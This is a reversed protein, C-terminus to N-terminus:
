FILILTGRWRGSYFCTDKHKQVCHINLKKWRHEPPIVIFRSIDKDNLWITKYLCHQLMILHKPPLSAVRLNISGVWLPLYYNEFKVGSKWLRLEVISTTCPLHKIMFLIPPKGRYLWSFLPFHHEPKYSTFWELITWIGAKSHVIQWGQQELLQEITDLRDVWQINFPQIFHGFRDPRFIPVYQLPNKWWTEILIKRVPWIPTYCHILTRYKAKSFASWPLVVALILFALWKLNGFPQQPYRRYLVITSLLITLGFLFSGLIDELWHTGLYLRSYSILIITIVLLTYPIWQWKKSIQQAVLFAIFGFTPLGFGIHGSPFTFFPYHWVSFGAPRPAQVLNKLIVILCGTILTTGALYMAPRFLKKISLATVLLLIVSIIVRYDGLMTIITFIKDINSFRLSQLFYFVPKNFNTLSGLIMTIVVLACFFCLSFCALIIMVLQYHDKPTKRNTILKRLPHSSYRRCISKWLRNAYGDIICVLFGFFNQIAWLILWLFIIVVMGTLIFMTITRYPLQLSIAGIITGPLLYAIAWFITSPVAALFFRSWSMRLLGAILPISSRVPGFFRGILISKGGHKRFFTEGITLWQPYRKFPWVLYLRDDKNYYKGVSFGVTDGILAGISAFFLTVDASIIGRGVLIGIVSMTISGPVITGIVPLSEFLSILFAFLIGMYVHAQLYHDIKTLYHEIM